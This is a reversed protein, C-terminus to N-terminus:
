AADAALLVGADVLRGDVVELRRVVRPHLVRHDLRAVRPERLQPPVRRRGQMQELGDGVEDVEHLAVLAAQPVLRDLLTERREDIAPLDAVVRQVVDQVPRRLDDPAPPRQGLIEERAVRVDLQELHREPVVDAQVGAADIRSRM